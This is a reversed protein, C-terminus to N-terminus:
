VWETQVDADGAKAGAAPRSACRRSPNPPRAPPPPGSLERQGGRPGSKGAQALAAKRQALLETLAETTSRPPAAPDDAPDSMGWFLM